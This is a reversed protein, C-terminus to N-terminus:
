GPITISAPFNAKPHYKRINAILGPLDGQVYKTVGDVCIKSFNAKNLEKLQALLTEDFLRIQGKHIVLLLDAPTLSYFDDVNIMDTKAKAIVLDADKGPAIKGSNLLWTQAANETLAYYLSTDSLLRTKRALKLHNWIDWNSTLTSDTGFLITAHKKLNFVQATKNLLFYNSEPCWVIANFKKAQKETMAVAHVGVLKKKFLNWRTLRDIENYALWDDGEGVHVNVPLKRKFPNNLKMKWRREFGVSHLCQTEEFVNILDNDTALKEGHNIVTTVGCLLNKYIGWEARLAIPIELVEAIEKKYNEHINKGWETYNSYIKNGLQPFLNFDLHDHSNILGPFIIAQDFRLHLPDAAKIRSFSVDIIKGDNVQVNIPRDSDVMNVSSLILKDGGSIYGM